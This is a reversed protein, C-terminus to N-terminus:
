EGKRAIKRGNVHIGYARQERLSLPEDAFPNPEPIAWPATHGQYCIPDTSLAGCECRWRKIDKPKGLARDPRHMQGYSSNAERYSDTPSWECDLLSIRRKTM